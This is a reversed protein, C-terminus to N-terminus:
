PMMQTRFHSPEESRTLFLFSFAALPDENVIQQTRGQM